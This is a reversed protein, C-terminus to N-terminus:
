KLGSRKLLADISPEHGRFNKYLTMPHDSGGKSLINRRFSEATAKNFIGNEKFLEFADADLVEAWKYGYYGAAYGGAFIHSFAVSVNSTKVPPLVNYQGIAEKEFDAVSKKTPQELSHWAMDLLGYRLQGLSYNGALYNQSDVIKQVLEPPIKEGTKYHVAFLDLYKKQTAWNEMIQSPLEVFDRYVSTGSVSQYTCESLMGHLAHGFEHLFTTLEDFTLLSPETETPKTFNTVVSVFPRIDENGKKYQPRFSTMWAGNSKGDRPFFDLYLISMFKGSGDYVEYTKVDPHYVPIRNNPTFTLGYLKNALLFIGDIVKDLQLYPKVEEDDYSYKHMKLKQNYYNWDWRELKGKFGLSNAFAQVEEVEKKAAPISAELLENELKYVNEANEAMRQELVMAAYNKYGLLNAVEIRLSSIEKVNKQNDNENGNFCRSGYAEFLQKRLERNEAYQMFPGYMPYDLTIAWGDIGKQKATLAAANILSQPLGALNASDTIHLLYANTEALVNESFIVNLEALRRSIERFREKGKENLNAGNRIFRLYTKKLLSMQETNLGFSERNDWVNKVRVFLDPNLSVDNSFDTVIPTAERIIKQLSSDTEAENLNSAIDIITSLRSRSNDLAVITNEFTPAETNSVISEIERKGEAIASDIAPLYHGPRIKDFPPTQFPTDFTTLLPNGPETAQKCSTVTLLAIMATITIQKRNM